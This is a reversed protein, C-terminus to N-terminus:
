MKAVSALAIPRTARGRGLVYGLSPPNPVRVPLINAVAALANAHTAHYRENDVYALLKDLAGLEDAPPHRATAISADVARLMREDAICRV